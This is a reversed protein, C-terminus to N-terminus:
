ERVEFLYWTDGWTTLDPIEEVYVVREDWIVHPGGPPDTWDIVWEVDREALYAGMRNAKIADYARGDVVGDLNVFEVDDAWYGIAGVQFAGVTSGGLNANVWRAITLYGNPAPQAVLLWASLGCQLALMVALSSTYVRQMRPLLLAPAPLLVVLAITIFLTLPHLYRDFFWYASIYLWYALLMLLGCLLVFGLPQLRHWGQRLWDNPQKLRRRVLVTGVIGLALLMTSYPTSLLVSLCVMLAALYWTASGAAQGQANLRVAAGSEPIISAGISWGLM